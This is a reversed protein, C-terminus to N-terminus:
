DDDDDDDDDDDTDVKGKHPRLLVVHLNSERKELETQPHPPACETMMM